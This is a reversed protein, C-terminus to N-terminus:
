QDETHTSVKGDKMMEKWKYYGFVAIVVYLGYLMAKFPIGKQV